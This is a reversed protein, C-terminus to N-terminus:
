ERFYEALKEERKNNWGHLIQFYMIAERDESHKKNLVCHGLEHFLLIEKQEETLHEWWTVNIRIVPTANSRVICDGLTLDKLDKSFKIVLDTVVHPNNHNISEQEFTKVYSDFFTADLL